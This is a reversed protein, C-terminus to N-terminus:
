ELNKYIAERLKEKDINTIDKKKIRKMIWSDLNDSVYDGESFDGDEEDNWTNYFRSNYMDDVFVDALGDYEIKFSEDKKEKKQKPQKIQFVM